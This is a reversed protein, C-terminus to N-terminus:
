GAFIFGHVLGGTQEQAIFDDTPALSARFETMTGEAMAAQQGRRKGLVDDFVHVLVDFVAFLKMGESKGNGGFTGGLIEVGRRVAAEHSREGRERVGDCTEFAEGEVTFGNTDMGDFLFGIREEPAQQM